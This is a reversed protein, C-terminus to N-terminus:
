VGAGLRTRKVRPRAGRETHEMHHDATARPMTSKWSRGCHGASSEEAADRLGGREERHGVGRFWAETLALAATGRSGEGARAAELAAQPKERTVRGSATDPRTVGRSEWAHPEWHGPTM